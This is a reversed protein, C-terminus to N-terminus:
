YFNAETRLLNQKKKPTASANIELVNILVFKLKNGKKSKNIQTTSEVLFYQVIVM